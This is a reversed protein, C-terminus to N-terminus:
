LLILVVIFKSIQLFKSPRTENLTFSRTRQSIPYEDPQIIHWQATPALRFECAIGIMGAIIILWQVSEVHFYVEWTLEVAGLIV